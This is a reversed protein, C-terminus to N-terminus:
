GGEEVQVSEVAWRCSAVLLDGTGRSITVGATLSHSQSVILCHDFTISSLELSGLGFAWLIPVLGALENIMERRTAHM